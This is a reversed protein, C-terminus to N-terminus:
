PISRSSLIRRKQLLNMSARKGINQSIQQGIASTTIMGELQMEKKFDRFADSDMLNRVSEIKETRVVNGRLVEETSPIEIIESEINNRIAGFANDVFGLFSTGITAFKTHYRTGIRSNDLADHNESAFSDDDNFGMINYEDNLFSPRSNNMLTTSNSPSTM